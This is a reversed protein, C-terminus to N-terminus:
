LMTPRMTNLKIVKVPPPKNNQSKSSIPLPSSRGAAIIESSLEAQNASSLQSANLNLRCRWGFSLKGWQMDYTGAIITFKLYENLPGNWAAQL